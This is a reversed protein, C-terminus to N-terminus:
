GIVLSKCFLTLPPIVLFKALPSCYPTSVLFLIRMYVASLHVLERIYAHVYNYGFSSFTLANVGHELTHIIAVILRGSSGTLLTRWHLCLSSQSSTSLVWLSVLSLSCFVFVSCFATVSLPSAFRTFPMVM